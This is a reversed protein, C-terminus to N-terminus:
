CQCGGLSEINQDALITMPQRHIAELYPLYSEMNLDFLGFAFGPQAEWFGPNAEFAGLYLTNNQVQDSDLTLHVSISIRPMGKHLHLRRSVEPKPHNRPKPHHRLCHLRARLCGPPSGCWCGRRSTNQHINFLLRPLSLTLLLWFPSLSEGLQKSWAGAAM